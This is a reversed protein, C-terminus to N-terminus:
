VEQIPYVTTTDAVQYGAGIRVIGRGELETTSWPYVTMGEGTATSCAFFMKCRGLLYINIVELWSRKNKTTQILRELRALMEETAGYAEVDVQVRFKYPDSGYEYWEEIKARGFISGIAEEVVAPTGKRKHWDLARKVLARKQELPLDPEYFDVHFQWALQDIVPEPLEDIRALLLCQDVAATVAQLEGDLAQAAASVKPDKAINPPLIDALRIDRISTM